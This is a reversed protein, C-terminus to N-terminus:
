IIEQLPENPTKFIPPQLMFNMTDGPMVNALEGIQFLQHDQIMYVGIRYKGDLYKACRIRIASVTDLMGTIPSAAVIDMDLIDISRWSPEEVTPKLYGVGLAITQEEGTDEQTLSVYIPVAYTGAPGLKLLDLHLKKLVKM